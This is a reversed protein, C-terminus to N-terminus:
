KAGGDGEAPMGEEHEVQRALLSINGSIANVNLRGTGSGLRGTVTHDGGHGSVPLQPFASTIRGSVAHLRVDLDSDERIRATIEGSTTELRIDSDRFNDLDCTVSGSVAHAYLRRAAADAITIEGSVTEMTLDGGVGLAEIPGSVTRVRVEGDLGLLSVRGSTVDAEVRARLGSAVVSGSVVRLAAVTSHPVAVSVDVRYAKGFGGLWWMLGAWGEPHEHRLTLRGDSCELLVPRRGVVTVDVRAPGDTGVVNVRGAILRVELRTVDEDLTIQGPKEFTQKIM